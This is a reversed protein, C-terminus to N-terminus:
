IRITFTKKKQIKKKEVTVKIYQVYWPMQIRIKWKWKGGFCFTSAVVSLVKYEYHFYYVLSSFDLLLLIGGELQFQISKFWFRFFFFSFFIHIQNSTSLFSKIRQQGMWRRRRRRAFTAALRPNEIRFIKPTHQSLTLLM